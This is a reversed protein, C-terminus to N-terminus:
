QTMSYVRVSGIDDFAVEANLEVFWHCAVWEIKIDRESMLKSQMNVIFSYSIPLAGYM